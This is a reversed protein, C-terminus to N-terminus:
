IMKQSIMDHNETSTQTLLRHTQKAMHDYLEHSSSSLFPPVNGTLKIHGETYLLKDRKTSHCSVHRFILKLNAHGRQELDTHSM